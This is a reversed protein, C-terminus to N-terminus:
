IVLIFGMFHKVAENSVSMGYILSVFKLCAHLPFPLNGGGKVVCSLAQFKDSLYILIFLNTMTKV